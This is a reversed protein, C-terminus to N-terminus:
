QIVQFLAVVALPGCWSEASARSAAPLWVVLAAMVTVTELSVVGGATVMVAGALPLAAVLVTVTDAVADSL